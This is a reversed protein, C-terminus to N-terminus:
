PAFRARYYRSANMAAGVDLYNTMTGAVTNNTVVFIDTFGNTSYNGYVDGNSAQLANTAGPAMLWTVLVDNGQPAVSVIRFSNPALVVQGVVLSGGTHVFQGCVNTLVLNDVVASGGSMTFTGGRVDLVADHAANTVALNGCTVTAQSQTGCGSYGVVLASQVDIEGGALTLSGATTVNSGVIVTNALVTGNSVTLNGVSRGYGDDNGAIEITGNTVVVQGGTVWMTGNGPGFGVGDLIVGGVTLNGGAVTLTADNELDVEELNVSGNSICAQGVELIELTANSALLQGGTVWLSPPTQPGGGGGCLGLLLPFDPGASFEMVGGALTLTGQQGNLVSNGMNLSTASLYGNSVTMQTVGFTGLQLVDTLVQGGTMLVSGTESITNGAYVYGSSIVSDPQITLIGEDILYGGPVQLNANTVLLTGGQSVFFATTTLSSNDRIIASGSNVNITGAYMSSNSLILAGGTAIEVTQYVTFPLSASVNGVLLTNTCCAPSSVTLTSTEFVDSSNTNLPGTMSVIKSNSNTIYAADGYAPYVGQSWNTGNLWDGSSGDTWSDILQARVASVCMILICFARCYGQRKM